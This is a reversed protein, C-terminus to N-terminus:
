STKTFDLDLPSELAVGVYASHTLNIVRVRLDDHEKALDIVEQSDDGAHAALATIAVNLSDLLDDILRRHAYPASHSM